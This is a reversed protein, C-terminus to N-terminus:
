ELQFTVPLICYTRVASGKIMGPKWKPSSRLVRIAEEDCGSGIGQKVKIDNISGDKEVIFSLYVKGQINNQRAAAPYKINNSIYKNLERQGGNFEPASEVLNMDYVKSDADQSVVAPSAEILETNLLASDPAVKNAVENRVEIDRLSEIKGEEDIIMEYKIDASYQERVSPKFYSEKTWYSAIIKSDKREFDLSSVVWNRSFNHMDALRKWYIDKLRQYNLNHYNYFTVTIKAFYSPPDFYGKRQDYYFAEIFKVLSARVEEDSMSESKNLISSNGEDLVKEPVEDKRFIKWPDDVFLTLYGMILILLGLGIGMYLLSRDKYVPVEEEPKETEEM